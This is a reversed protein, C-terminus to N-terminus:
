TKHMPVSLFILPVLVTGWPCRKITQLVTGKPAGNQGICNALFTGLFTGLCLVSLNRFNYYSEPTKDTYCSTMTKKSKTVYPLRAFLLAMLNSLKCVVSFLKDVSRMHFCFM